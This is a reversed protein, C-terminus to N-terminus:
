AAASIGPRNGWRVSRPGSAPPAAPPMAGTRFFPHRRGAPRHPPARAAANSAVAAARSCGPPRSRSPLPQNDPRESAPGAPGGGSSVWGSAGPRRAGAPWRGRRRRGGGACRCSLRGPCRAPRAAVCGTLRRRKIKM